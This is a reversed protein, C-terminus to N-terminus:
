DRQLRRRDYEQILPLIKPRAEPLRHALRILGDRLRRDEEPMASAKKEKEEKEKLFDPKPENEKGDDDKDKDKWQKKFAEPVKGKADIYGAERLMSLVPGRAAENNHALRVLGVFLDQEQAAKDQQGPSMNAEENPQPGLEGREVKEGLESWEQQTFQDMYSKEDPQEEIPGPEVEGIEEPNFDEALIKLLGSREDSGKPYKAALKILDKRLVTDEPTAM